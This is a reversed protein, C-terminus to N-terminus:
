VLMTPSARIAAGGMGTIQAELLVQKDCGVYHTLQKENGVWLCSFLYIM